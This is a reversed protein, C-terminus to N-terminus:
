AGDKISGRKSVTAAAVTAAISRWRPRRGCGTSVKTTSVKALLAGGRLGVKGVTVLIVGGGVDTKGLAALIAGGGVRIKGVTALLAGGWGGMIGLTVLVAGDGAGLPAQQGTSRVLAKGSEAGM